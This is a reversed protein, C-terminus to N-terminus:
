FINKTDERKMPLESNDIYHQHQYLKLILEQNKIEIEQIKKQQSNVWEQLKKNESIYLDCIQMKILLDMANKKWQEKMGETIQYQQRLIQCQQKLIENEQKLIQNEKNLKQNEKEKISSDSLKPKNNYSNLKQKNNYSDLKQFYDGKHTSNQLKFEYKIVKSDVHDM